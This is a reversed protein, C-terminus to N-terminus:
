QSLNKKKTEKDADKPLLRVVHLLVLLGVRPVRSVRSVRSVVGGDRVRVAAVSHVRRLLRVRHASM